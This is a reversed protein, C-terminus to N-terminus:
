QLQLSTDTYEHFEIPNGDPDEVWMQWTNDSELHCSGLIKIGANKLKEELAQIETVELSLHMYGVKTGMVDMGIHECAANGLNYFLELFQRPAIELYQIWPKGEKSTLLFKKKFGLIEHYFKLSKEMDSTMYAIHAVGKIKM